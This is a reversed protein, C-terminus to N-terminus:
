KDGRSWAPQLFPAETIRVMILSNHVTKSVTNQWTTVFHTTLSRQSNVSDSVHIHSWNTVPTYFYLKLMYQTGTKRKKCLLLWSSYAFHMVLFIKKIRANWFFKYLNWWYLPISNQHWGFFTIISGTDALTM